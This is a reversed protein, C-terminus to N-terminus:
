SSLSVTEPIAEKEVATSQRVSEVWERNSWLGCGGDKSKWKMHNEKLVKLFESELAERLSTEKLNHVSFPAFPCPEVFGEPSLHIFGRGAALCGGYTAERGPLSVFLSASNKRLADIRDALELKQTQSLVLNMTGPTLPVFEIYFVLKAGLKVVSDVFRRETIKIHNQSTATISVGFFSGSEKLSDIVELANRYIGAGRRTDTDGENGEISVIPVINRHEKLWEVTNEDIMTGNTFVPFLIQPFEAATQLIDKRMFPEGGAMLVISIGLEVSQELISRFHSATIERDTRLKKANSYCGVCNLNCKSTISAIMVPPVHLGEAEYRDRVAAAERQNKATKAMFAIQVPNKVAIKIATGFFNRLSDNFLINWNSM